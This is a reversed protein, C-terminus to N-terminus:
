HKPPLGHGRVEERIMDYTMQQLTRLGSIQDTVGKIQEEVRTIRDRDTELKDIRRRIEDGRAKSTDDSKHLEEIDRRFSTVESSWYWTQAVISGIITACVAVATFVSMRKNLALTLIQKEPV